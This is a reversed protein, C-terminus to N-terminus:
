FFAIVEVCLKERQVTMTHTEWIRMIWRKHGMARRVVVIVIVKTAKHQKYCNQCECFKVVLFQNVISKLTFKKEHGMFNALDQVEDEKLNYTVCLTAIHKRLETGRLSFPIQAGCETSFKRMLPCARLYRFRTKLFGPLGFVFPNKLPVGARKKFGIILKLCEHM